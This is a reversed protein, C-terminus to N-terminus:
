HRGLRGVLYVGHPASESELCRAVDWLPMSHLLKDWPHGRAVLFSPFM